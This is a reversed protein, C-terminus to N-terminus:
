VITCPLSLFQSKKSNNRALDSEIDDRMRPILWKMVENYVREQMEVDTWDIPDTNVNKYAKYKPLLGPLPRMERYDILLDRILQSSQEM